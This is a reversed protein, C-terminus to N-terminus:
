VAATEDLINPIKYYMNKWYEEVEKQKEELLDL